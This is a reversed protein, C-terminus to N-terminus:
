RAGRSQRRRRLRCRRWEDVSACSSSFLLSRACLEFAGDDRKLSAISPSRKHRCNSEEGSSREWPTHGTAPGLWCAERLSSPTM